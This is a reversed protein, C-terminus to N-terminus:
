NLKKLVYGTTTNKLFKPKKKCTFRGSSINKRTLVSKKCIGISRSKNKKKIDVKKICKCLKEALIKEAKNKISKTSTNKTHKINYFDLIKIYDNNTLKM